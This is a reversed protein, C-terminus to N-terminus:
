RRWRIAGRLRRTQEQLMRIDAMLQQHEKNAAAAPTAVGALVLGILVAFCKQTM